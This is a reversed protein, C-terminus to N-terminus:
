AGTLTIDIIEAPVNVRLPFWNGTGNSVLLKSDGKQYIGSIYKFLM